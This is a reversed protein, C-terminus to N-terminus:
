DCGHCTSCDHTCEVKRKGTIAFELENYVAETFESYLESAEKFAVYHASETVKSYIENLRSQLEKVSDSDFNQNEYEKALSTQIVGYEDLMRNLELDGTYAASASEMEKYKTDNKILDGVTHIADIQEKTLIIDM